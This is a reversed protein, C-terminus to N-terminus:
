SLVSRRRNVADLTSSNSRSVLPPLQGAAPADPGLCYIRYRAAITPWMQEPKRDLRQRVANVLRFRVADSPPDASSTLQNILDLLVDGDYSRRMFVPQESSTQRETLNTVGELVHRVAVAENTQAV